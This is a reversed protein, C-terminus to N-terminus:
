KSSVDNLRLCHILSYFLHCMMAKIHPNWTQIYNININFYRLYETPICIYEFCGESPLYQQLCKLFVMKKWGVRLFRNIFDLITSGCWKKRGKLKNKVGKSISNGFIGKKNLKLEDSLTLPIPNLCKNKNILTGKSLNPWLKIIFCSTLQSLKPNILQYKFLRRLNGTIKLRPLNTSLFNIRLVNQLSDGQLVKPPNTSSNQPPFRSM